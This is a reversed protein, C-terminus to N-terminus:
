FKYLDDVKRYKFIDDNKLEKQPIIIKENDFKVHYIDELGKYNRPINRSDNKFDYESIVELPSLDEDDLISPNLGEEIIFFDDGVQIGRFEYSDEGCSSMELTPPQKNEM